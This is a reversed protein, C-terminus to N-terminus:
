ATGGLLKLQLESLACFRRGVYKIEHEIEWASDLDGKKMADSYFRILGGIYLRERELARGVNVIMDGIRYESKNIRRRMM